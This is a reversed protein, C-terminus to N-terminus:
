SAQPATERSEPPEMVEEVGVVGIQVIGANSATAQSPTMAGPSVPLSDKEVSNQRNEGPLLSHEVVLLDMATPSATDKNDPCSGAAAVVVPPAAKDAEVAPEVVVAVAPRQVAEAVLEAEEACRTM